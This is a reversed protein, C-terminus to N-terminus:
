PACRFMAGCAQAALSIAVKGIARMIKGIIAAMGDKTFM